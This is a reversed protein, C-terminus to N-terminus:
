CDGDDRFGVQCQWKKPHENQDCQSLSGLRCQRKRLINRSAFDAADQRNEKRRRVAIVSQSADSDAQCQFEHGSRRIEKVTTECRTREKQPEARDPSGAWVLVVWDAALESRSLWSALSIDRLCIHISVDLANALYRNNKGSKAGHSKTLVVVGLVFVRSDCGSADDNLNTVADFDFARRNADFRDAYVAKKPFCLNRDVGDCANVKAVIVFRFRGDHQEVAVGEGAFDRQAFHRADGIPTFRLDIDLGDFRDDEAPIELPGADISGVASPPLQLFDGPM